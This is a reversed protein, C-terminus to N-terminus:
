IKAKNSRIAVGQPAFVRITQGKATFSIWGLGAISIDMKEDGEFTLDYADLDAITRISKSIPTTKKYRIINKLTESARNTQTRLVRVDNAVYLTFNTRPGSLYDIRAIGGILLSNNPVLQFNRPKIEKRPVVVRIVDRELVGLVTNNISLGPTDFISIDDDVPIEIVRLTTNPYISTTIYNMTTNKYVRFFANILSSKGSSVAGIVYIAMKPKLLKMNDLLTAINYNKTSSTIIVDKITLNAEEARNKVYEILKEDKVSKPLLDRKNAIMVVSSGELIKNIESNFSAEFNFLDVVYIFLANKKKADKIITMFDDSIIPELHTEENYNRLKFCRQCLVISRNLLEENPVYGELNPDSSQLIAGCGYCRKAKKINNEM